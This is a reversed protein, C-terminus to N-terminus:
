LAGAAADRRALRPTRGSLDVTAKGLAALKRTDLCNAIVSPYDARLAPESSLAKGLDAMCAVKTEYSRAEAPGTADIRQCLSADDSCGFLALAYFLGSM